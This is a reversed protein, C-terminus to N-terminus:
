QKSSKQPNCNRRLSPLGARRLASRPALRSLEGDALALITRKTARLIADSPHFATIETPPLDRNHPCIRLCRDCGFITHRGAETSMAALAEPTVFDGRHEITLYNLCRRSDILGSPTLAGTPCIRHCAGCAACVSDPHSAQFRIQNPSMSLLMDEPTVHKFAHTGPHETTTSSSTSTSASTPPLPLTTLIEALFTLSGHTPLLVAGNSARQAMGSRVAWYREMIPASDICIRYDGGYRARIQEVARRLRGRIEDHYDRGYAYCAIHGNDSDNEHERWRPPAYSFALSIISRAGPLLLRPDRRIESWNHLYDMGAAYGAQLWDQYEQWAEPAVPEAVSVGFGIAGANETIEKIHQRDTETM